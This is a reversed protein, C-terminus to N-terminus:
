RGRPSRRIRGSFSMRLSGSWSTLWSRAASSHKRVCSSCPSLFLYLAGYVLAWAPRLPVGRDLALEPVHVPRGRMFDGIFIYFPVLLMLTVMPVVTPISLPYPRTLVERVM